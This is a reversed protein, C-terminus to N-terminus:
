PLWDNFEKSKIGVRLNDDWNYKKSIEDSWDTCRIAISGNELFFGDSVAYSKGSKDTPHFQKVDFNTEADKFLESVERSILKLKKKCKEIDSYFIGASISHIIYKNDNTKYAFQIGDYEGFKRYIGSSTYKGDSGIFMNKDINTNIEEESFYDLASDGISIGEIQFDRIDDAWSSTQFM